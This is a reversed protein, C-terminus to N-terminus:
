LVEEIRGEPMAMLPGAPDFEFRSLSLGDRCLVPVPLRVMGLVGTMREAARSIDVGHVCASGDGHYCWGRTYVNFEATVDSM